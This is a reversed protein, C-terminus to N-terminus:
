FAPDGGIRPRSESESRRPDGPAIVYAATGPPNPSKGLTSLIYARSPQEVAAAPVPQAEPVESCAAVVAAGVVAIWIRGPM